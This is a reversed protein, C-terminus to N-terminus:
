SSNRGWVPHIEGEREMQLKIVYPPLVTVKGESLLGGVHGCVTM